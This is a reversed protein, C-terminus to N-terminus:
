RPTARPDATRLSRDAERPGLAFRPDPEEEGRLLRTVYEALAPGHKFGHGSGGGVIWVHAHEPHPAVLFHTDPTLEYHCVTAAVLRADSLAPFRRRVYERATAEADPAPEREASDPDFPPGEVDCAAKVGHGDLDGLGYFSGDYDVWAPVGPTRWEPGAEFFTTSQRTVRLGVLEPFLKALWAGCAWIVRDAELREGGALEVGGGAPRAASRLLRAGREVATGALAEVARAARLVGAEPELLCFELDDGGLSPFLRAAEAVDLREVAVGEDRLARESDAEWGDDSRAFWCMGAEVLLEMGAERELDRWLERARRASRLYWRASGHSCRILRSEAGSTAVPDGPPRPDV